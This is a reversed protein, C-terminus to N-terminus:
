VTKFDKVVYKKIYAVNKEVLGWCQQVGEHISSWINNLHQKICILMMITLCNKYKSYKHEHRFWPKNKDYRHSRKENEDENENYNIMYYCPYLLM